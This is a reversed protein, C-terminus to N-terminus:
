VPNFIKFIQQYIGPHYFYVWGSGQGSQRLQIRYYDGDGAFDTESFTMETGKSLDEGLSKVKLILSASHPSNFLREIEETPNLVSKEHAIFNYFIVYKERSVAITKQQKLDKDFYSFVMSEFIYRGDSRNKAGPEVFRLTYAQEPDLLMNKAFYSGTPNYYYLMSLAILIGAALGSGLVGLLIKIQKSKSFNNIEAM